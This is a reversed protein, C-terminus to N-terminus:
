EKIVTRIDKANISFFMRYGDSDALEFIVKQLEDININLQSASVCNEYLDLFDVNKGIDKIDTLYDGIYITRESNDWNVDKGLVSGVSRVPLYTTWNYSLPYVAAGNGDTFSQTNGDIKITIDPRITISVKASYLDSSTEATKYNSQPETISGEIYITKDSDNWQINKGLMAGISRVPLYTTGNYSIPYVTNGSGDYFIQIEKDVMVTIDPTIAAQAPEAESGYAPVISFILLAIFMIIKINKM